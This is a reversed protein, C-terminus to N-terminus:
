HFGPQGTTEIVSQWFEGDPEISRRVSTALGIPVHVYRSNWTSIMCDTRGAMAAHVAHHGLTSCFVADDANARAARIQYSPDIYKITHEVNKAKLHAGIREKLFLGIDDHLKNGSADRRVDGKPMLDQGAGEAVVIVANGRHELRKELWALLGKDGDLQFPVEPVLVVNTVGSAVAAGAAIFGSDRGMLRVIGIGGVTSIAETWGAHVAQRALEVATEYGFTREVWSIDNDITKPIGVVALERGQKRVEEAIEHAGRQTGDGGICFLLDIHHKMLSAAIAPVNPKIRASGLVSGGFHHVHKVRQVTLPAIHDDHPPTLGRYGNPIGLIRDEDIGYHFHLGMVIARIVDNLGPCLGGSTLIGARVSVPMWALHSRPGALEFGVEPSGVMPDLRVRAQDDVHRVPVDAGRQVRYSTPITAERIRRIACQEATIDM